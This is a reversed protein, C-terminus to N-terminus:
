KATASAVNSPASTHGAVDEAEAYLCYKQHRVLGDVETATVPGVRVVSPYASASAAPCTAAQAYHIVYGAIGSGADSSATWTLDISGVATKGTAASLTVATPATVDVVVTAVPGAASTFSSVAALVAYDYTGDGAPVDDYTLWEIPSASVQAYAGAGGPSRLVRYTVSEAAATPSADWAVHVGGGPGVSASTTPPPQVVLTAITNPGNVASAAFSAATLARGSSVAAIALLGAM